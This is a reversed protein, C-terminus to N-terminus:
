MMDAFYQSMHRFFPWAVALLLVAFAASWALPLLDPATGAGMVNRFGNILGVTPNLRLINRLEPVIGETSYFIPTLFMWLQMVYPIALTIDGRFPAIAAVLLGVALGLVVAVGVLVPYWLLNWTVPVAFYTMMGVLVIQGMFFDVLSTSIVSVVFIERSIPMKKILSGNAFVAPGSTNVVTVIFNWPLIATYLFIVFNMNGSVTIGLVARLATFVAMQFLPQILIWSWSLTSRAYRARLDRYTLAKLLSWYRLFRGKQQLRAVGLSFAVRLLLLVLLCMCSAALWLFVLAPLGTLQYDTMIQRAAPATLLLSLGILILRQQKSSVTWLLVQIALTM